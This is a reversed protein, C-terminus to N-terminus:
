TDNCLSSDADHIFRLAKSLQNVQSYGLVLGGHALQAEFRLIVAELQDACRETVNPVSRILGNRRFFGDTRNGPQGADTIIDCERGRSLGDGARRKCLFKWWTDVIKGRLCPLSRDVHQPDEHVHVLLHHAISIM